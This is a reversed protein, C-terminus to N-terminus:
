RAVDFVEPNACHPLRRDQLGAALNEAALLAMQERTWQSASGLHPLVICNNLQLLPSDPSLPEPETVDLGAAFLQGTKLARYLADHDVVPGRSTNVLVATPKMRRLSGENIMHRTEPTLPVHLSVFDSEALLTDLEMFQAAPHDAAAPDFYIVHLGFGIARTAVARGIRGMGIIGLTRGAFDAGLLLQLNWTKWKGARVYEVGEVVRRATALLLAFTLDATADTVVDPTNGVPIRRATAAKLDINDVGVACNSIVRLQPAADMVEADIGDTLLSLLGDKGRVGRILEARPPPMEHPWIEAECVELVLQLAKNPISRTVFVNPKRM